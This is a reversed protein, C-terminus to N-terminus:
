SNGYSWSALGSAWTKHKMFESNYSLKKVFEDKTLTTLQSIDWTWFGDQLRGVNKRKECIMVNDDTVAIVVLVPSYVHWYDGPQPCQLCYQNMGRQKEHDYM